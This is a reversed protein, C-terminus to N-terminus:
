NNVTDSDGGDVFGTVAADANERAKAVVLRLLESSRLVTAKRVPDMDSARVLEDHTDCVDNVLGEIADVHITGVPENMGLSRCGQSSAVLIGCLVLFVVLALSVLADTKHGNRHPGLEEQRQEM